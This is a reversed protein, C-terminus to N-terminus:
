ARCHTPQRSLLLDEAISQLNTMIVVADNQIDRIPFPFFGTDSLITRMYESESYLWLMVIDNVVSVDWYGIRGDEDSSLVSSNADAGGISLHGTSSMQYVGNSCFIYQESYSSSSYGNASSSFSNNGSYSLLTDAILNRVQVARSSDFDLMPYTEPHLSQSLARFRAHGEAIGQEVNAQAV